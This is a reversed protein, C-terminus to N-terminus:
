VRRLRLTSYVEPQGSMIPQGMGVVVFGSTCWLIVGVTIPVTTTFSGTGHSSRAKVPATPDGTTSSDGVALIQNNTFDYLMLQSSGKVSAQRVDFDYTGAPLNTIRGNSTNLASGWLTNVLTVNYPVDNNGAYSDGGATGAPLQHRVMIEPTCM